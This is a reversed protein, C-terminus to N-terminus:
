EDDRERRNISVFRVLGWVVLVYFVILILWHQWTM